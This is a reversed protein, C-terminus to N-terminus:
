PKDETALYHVERWPDSILHGQDFMLFGNAIEDIKRLREQARSLESELAAIRKNQTDEIPRSNWQNIVAEIEEVNHPWAGCANNRCVVYGQHEHTESVDVLDVNDSGCFPCPKLEEMEVRGQMREKNQSIKEDIVRVAIMLDVDEGLSSPRKAIEILRGKVRELEGVTYTHRTTKM